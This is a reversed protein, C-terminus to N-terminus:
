IDCHNHYLKSFNILRIHLYEFQCECYYAMSKKHLLEGTQDVRESFYNGPSLM